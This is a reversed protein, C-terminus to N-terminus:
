AWRDSTKDLRSEQCHLAVHRVLTKLGVLMFTTEDLCRHLLIDSPCHALRKCSHLPDVKAQERKVRCRPKWHGPSTWPM